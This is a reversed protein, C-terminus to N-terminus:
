FRRRRAKVVANPLVGQGTLTGMQSAVNIPQVTRFKITIYQRLYIVKSITLTVQSRM